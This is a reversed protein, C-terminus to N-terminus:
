IIYIINYIDLINVLKILAAFIYICNLLDSLNLKFIFMMSIDGFSFIITNNASLLLLGVSRVTCPPSMTPHKQTFPISVAKFLIYASVCDLSLMNGELIM